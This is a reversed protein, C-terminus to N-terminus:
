GRQAAIAGDLRELMKERQGPLRGRVRFPIADHFGDYEVPIDLGELLLRAQVLNEWEEAPTFRGQAILGALPSRPHIMLSFNVIRAPATENCFRALALADEEGRGRGAVGTMIHADFILGAERLRLAAQRAQDVTHDKNMLALVDDLGSEIGLYLHRVGAQALARLEGGTRNLVSPVTADMNVQRCAPFYRRILALIELLRGTPLVFASGDGLFVREPSGGAARVRKLEGEVQELPLVRYDLHKFLMCFACRNYACGVSVPLMFSGREMPSRCIQGEYEM